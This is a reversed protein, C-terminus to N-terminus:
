SERSWRDNINDRIGRLTDNASFKGWLAFHTVPIVHTQCRLQSVHQKMFGSFITWLTHCNLLPGVNLIPCSVQDGGGGGGHVDIETAADDDTLFKVSGPGDLKENEFGLSAVAFWSDGSSGFAGAM